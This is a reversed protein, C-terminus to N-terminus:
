HGHSRCYGCHNCEVGPEIVCADGVNVITLYQYHSAHATPVQPELEQGGGLHKQVAERVLARLEAETM